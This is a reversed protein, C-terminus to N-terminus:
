SFKGVAFSPEVYAGCQAFCVRLHLASPNSARLASRLALSHLGRMVPERGYIM